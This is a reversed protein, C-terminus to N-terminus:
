GSAELAAKEAEISEVLPAKFIDMCLILYKKSCFREKQDTVYKKIYRSLMKLYVMLFQETQIGQIVKVFNEITACKHRNLAQLVDAKQSRDRRALMALM